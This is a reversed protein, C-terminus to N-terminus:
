ERRCEILPVGRYVVLRVFSCKVGHGGTVRQTDYVPLEDPIREIQFHELERAPRELLALLM